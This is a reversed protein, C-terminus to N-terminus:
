ILYQFINKSLFMVKVVVDNMKNLYDIYLANENSSKALTGEFFSYWWMEETKSDVERFM